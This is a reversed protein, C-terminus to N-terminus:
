CLGSTRDEEIEADTVLPERAAASHRVAFVTPLGVTFSVDDLVPVASGTTGRRCRRSIVPSHRVAEIVQFFEM